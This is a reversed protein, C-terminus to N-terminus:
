QAISLSLSPLFTKATLFADGPSKTKMHAIGTKTDRLASQPQLNEALSVAPTTKKPNAIRYARIQARVHTRFAVLDDLSVLGYRGPFSFSWAKRMGIEVGICM